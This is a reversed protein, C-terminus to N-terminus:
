MIVRQKSDSRSESHCCAFNLEYLPFPAHLDTENVVLLQVAFVSSNTVSERYFFFDSKQHLQNAFLKENYLNM